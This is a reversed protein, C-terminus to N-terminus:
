EPFDKLLVQAIRTAEACSDGPEDASVKPTVELQVPGSSTDFILDCGGPVTLSDLMVANRGDVTVNRPNSFNNTNHIAEDFTHANTSYM